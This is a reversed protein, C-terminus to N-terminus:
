AAGGKKGRANWWDIARDVAADLRKFILRESFPRLWRECARAFLILGYVTLTIQISLIFCMAMMVGIYDQILQMQDQVTLTLEQM